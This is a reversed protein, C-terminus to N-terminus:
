TGALTELQLIPLLISLVIVAVLGGMVLIIAPELVALATGALADFERELAEAARELMLDLRGASEGGAAMSILLPPFLSSARMAVSLSAGERIATIMRTAAARMAHNGITPATLALAEVIPLRSAIMMALTRALRAANVDRLVRGAVPLALLRTDFALRFDADRLARAFLLSGGVGLALLLWWWGALFASIGMVIRTLLPLTQGLDEFQGAIRPVVFIMLAAVALLAIVALAAPYTLAGVLRSRIQAQRELLNALRNLIDPLNGASEGAAVMARYVPPFSTPELALADALRRGEVVAGHVRNLVAEVQPQDAQRAITRLAEALPAVEALTALQRTFLTLQRPKLRRRSPLARPQAGGSAPGLRTAFLKKELLDARAAEMSDAQLRGSKARGALDLAEYDFQPM